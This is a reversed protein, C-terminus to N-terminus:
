RFGNRLTTHTTHSIGLARGEGLWQRIRSDLTNYKKVSSRDTLKEKGFISYFFGGRNDEQYFQPINVHEGRPRYGNIFLDITSDAWIAMGTSGFDQKFLDFIKSEEQSIYSDIYTRVDRTGYQQSTIVGHSAVQVYEDILRMNQEFWWHLMNAAVAGSCLVDDPANDPRDLKPKESLSEKVEEKKIM